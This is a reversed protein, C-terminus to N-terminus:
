PKSWSFPSYSGIIWVLLSVGLLLVVLGIVWYPIRTWFPYDVSSGMFGGIFVIAGMFVLAVGYLLVMGPASVFAWLGGLTALIADLLTM